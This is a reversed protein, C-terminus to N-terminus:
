RDIRNDEEIESGKSCGPVTGHLVSQVSTTRNQLSRVRNKVSLQGPPVHTQCLCGDQSVTPNVQREVKELLEVQTVTM